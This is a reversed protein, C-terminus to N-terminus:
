AAIKMTAKKHEKLLDMNIYRNDELWAQHIDPFMAACHYAQMVGMSWGYVLAVKRM